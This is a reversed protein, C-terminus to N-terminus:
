RCISADLQRAKAIDANGSTEEIKLKANGRNCFALANKPDLRIAENYDAIATTAKKGMLSAGTPLPSLTGLISDFRRTTIRLPETRIVSEGKEVTGKSVLRVV